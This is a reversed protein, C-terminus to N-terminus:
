QNHSFFKIHNYLMWLLLAGSSIVALHLDHM